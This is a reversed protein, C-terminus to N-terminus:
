TQLTHSAQDHGTHLFAWIAAPRAAKARRSWSWFSVGGSAMSRTRSLTVAAHASSLRSLSSALAVARGASGVKRRTGRLLTRRKPFSSM